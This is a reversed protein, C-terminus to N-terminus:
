WLLDRTNAFIIEEDLVSVVVVRSNRLRWIFPFDEVVM